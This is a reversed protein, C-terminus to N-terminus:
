DGGGVDLLKCEQGVGTRTIMGLSVELHVQYWSLTTSAKSEFATRWRTESKM